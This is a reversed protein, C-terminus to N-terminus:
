KIWYIRHWNLVNRNGVDLVRDCLIWNVEMIIVITQIHHLLSVSTHTWEVLFIIWFVHILFLFVPLEDSFNLFVKSSGRHITKLSKRRVYWQNKKKWFIQNVPYPYLVDLLFLVSLFSILFCVDTIRNETFVRWFSKFKWRIWWRNSKHLPSIRNGIIEKERSCNKLCQLKTNQTFPKGNKKKM